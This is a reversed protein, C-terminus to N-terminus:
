RDERPDDRECEGALEDWRAQRKRCEACFEDWTQWKPPTTGAWPCYPENTEPYRYHGPCTDTKM